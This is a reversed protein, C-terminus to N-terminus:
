NLSRKIKILKKKLYDYLAETEELSIGEKMKLNNKVVLYREYAVGNYVQRIKKFKTVETVERYVEPSHRRTYELFTAYESPSPMRSGEEGLARHDEYWDLDFHSMEKAVWLNMSPVYVFNNSDVEGRTELRQEM